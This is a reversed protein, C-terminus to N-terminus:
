RGWKQTAIVHGIGVARGDDRMAVDLTVSLTRRQRLRVVELEVPQAVPLFRWRHPPHKRGCRCTSAPTRSMEIEWAAWDDEALEVRVHLGGSCHTQSILLGKLPAPGRGPMVLYDDDHRGDQETQIEGLPNALLHLGDHQHECYSVQAAYREGGRCHGAVLLGRSAMLLTEAAESTHLYIGEGNETPRLERVPAVRDQGRMIWTEDGAVSKPAFEIV